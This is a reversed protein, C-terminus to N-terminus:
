RNVPEDIMESWPIQIEVQTTQSSQITLMANPYWIHLTERVFPLGVSSKNKNESFDSTISKAMKEEIQSTDFGVGNDEVLITIMDNEQLICIRCYCPHCCPEIGHIVANEVLPQLILRPIQVDHLNEPCEIEYTLRNGFRMQQLKLYDELFSCEEGLTTLHQKKLVYRLLHALSYFADNLKKTEGIQNLAIFCYITNILFHPQIQSQLASLQLSKQQITLIYENKIKDNLTEIVENLSSGIKDFEKVEVTSCRADLDGEALKEFTNQITSTSKVIWHNFFYFLLLATLIGVTYIGAAYYILSRTHQIIEDLSYVIAVNLPLEDGNATLCNWQINQYRFSQGTQISEFASSTLPRSSYILERNENTIVVFSDYLLDIQQLYTDFERSQLNLLILNEQNPQKLNRIKRSVYYNSVDMISDVGDTQIRAPTFVAKGNANMAHLYWNQEELNLNNPFYRYENYIIPYFFLEGDSFIVLDRIDSHSFTTLNILGQMETQFDNLETSFNKDSPSISKRSSFYSHYYPASTITNIEDQYSSLYAEILNQSIAVQSEATNRYNGAFRLCLFGTILITPILTSVLFCILLRNM